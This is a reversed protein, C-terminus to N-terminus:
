RVYEEVRVQEFVFSERLEHTRTLTRRSADLERAHTGLHQTGVILWVRARNTAREPSLNHLAPGGRKAYFDFGVDLFSPVFVMGDGSQAQERVHGVAARWQEMAPSSHWFRVGGISLLIM